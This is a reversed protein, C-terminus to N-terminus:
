IWNQCIQNSCRGSRDAIMPSFYSSIASKRSDSSELCFRQTRSEGNENNLTVEEVCGVVTPYKM